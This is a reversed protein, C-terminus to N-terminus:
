PTVAATPDPASHQAQTPQDQAELWAISKRFANAQSVLEQYRYRHSTKVHGEETICEAMASGIKDLERRMTTLASPNM